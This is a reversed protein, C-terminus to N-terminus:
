FFRELEPVDGPLTERIGNQELKALIGEDLREINVLHRVFRVTHNTHLIPPVHKGELGLYRNISDYQPRTIIQRTLLDGIIRQGDATTCQRTDYPNKSSDHTVDDRTIKMFWDKLHGDLENLAHQYFEYNHSRYDFFKHGRESIGGRPILVGEQIVRQKSVWGCIWLRWRKENPSGTGPFKASTQLRTIIYLDTSKLNPDFLQRAYFNHKTGRMIGGSGAYETKFEIDINETKVDMKLGHSNILDAALDPDDSEIGSLGAAKRVAYQALFGRKVELKKNSESQNKALSFNEKLRAWNAEVYEDVEKRTQVHQRGNLDVYIVM